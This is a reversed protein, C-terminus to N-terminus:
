RRRATGATSGRGPIVVPPRPPLLNLRCRLWDLTFRRPGISPPQGPFDSSARLTMRETGASLRGGAHFGETDFVILSGAPGAHSRLPIAESPAAINPLAMLYGGQGLFAQRLAHNEAQSGPAYRFAGNAEDTDVLYLLFKLSRFADFHTDTIPGPRIEHTAVVKAHIEAGRPLYARALGALDARWFAGLVHPLETVSALRSRITLMRGPPHDGIRVGAKPAAFLAEIERRIDGVAAADLYREAFLVGDRRLTDLASAIELM